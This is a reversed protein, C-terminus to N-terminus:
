PRQGKMFSRLRSQANEWEGNWARATISKLASHAADPLRGATHLQELSKDCRELLLPDHLSVATFLADVSQFAEEDEGIQPSGCGILAVALALPLALRLRPLPPPRLM